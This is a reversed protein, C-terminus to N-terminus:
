EKGTASQELQRREPAMKNEVVYVYQLRRFNTTPKLYLIQLNKSKVLATKYVIGINVGGPFFSYETTFVTDGKSVKIQNPVDKMLLKDPTQGDWSVYSVTGDKLRASVQQKKSLVSLATSFHASTNVIRGVIGNASIVAMDKRIGDDEGRNLTIFNNVSGVTNNIVKAYRYYYDAYKVKASSDPNPIAYNASSDRLVDIGDHASLQRRLAENEHVLSDNMSKLAFYYAVDNRQQYMTGLLMNSSSMIDNGQVTDTRAILVICVIELVLFLILNFFRRIFLIFNRM